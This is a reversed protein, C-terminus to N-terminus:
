THTLEIEELDEIPRGAAVMERLRLGALSIAVM